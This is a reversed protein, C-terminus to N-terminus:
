EGVKYEITKKYEYGRVIKQTVKAKFYEGSAYDRSGVIDHLEVDQMESVNFEIKKREMENLRKTGGEILATADEESTLEYTEVVEDVGTFTQTTSVNGDADVYLDVVAREHLEGKGLVILHNATGQNRTLKIKVGCDDSMEVDESWDTIDEVSIDVKNTLENYKLSIRKGISNLMKEIGDLFTCYRDFQWSVTTTDTGTYEYLDNLGFERLFTRVITDIDGNVIRYDDVGENAPRIIKKGLLGRFTCGGFTVTEVNTETVIKSIVGGYETAPEVVISGIGIGSNRPVTIEFTNDNGVDVDIYFGKVYGIEKRENDM